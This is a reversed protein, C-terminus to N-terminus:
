EESPIEIVVGGDIITGYEPAASNVIDAPSASRSEASVAVLQQHGDTVARVKTTEPIGLAVSRACFDILDGLSIGAANEVSRAASGM